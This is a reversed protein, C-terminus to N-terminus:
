SAGLSRPLMIIKGRVKDGNVGVLAVFDFIPVCIPQSIDASFRRSSDVRIALSKGLSEAVIM